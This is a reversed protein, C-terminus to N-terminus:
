RPARQSTGLPRFGKAPNFTKKISSNPRMKNRKRSCGMDFAFAVGPGRQTPADNIGVDQHDTRRDPKPLRRTNGLAHQFAHIRKQTLGVIAATAQSTSDL